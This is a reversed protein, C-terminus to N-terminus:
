VDDVRRAVARADFPEGGMELVEFGTATLMGELASPTIGWWWNDYTGSKGAGHESAESGEREFRHTIGLRPGRTAPQYVARGADSLGPYFVCGQEIGPIEPIAATLLLLTERTVKRLCELTHLPNPSHYLVGACFVVEHIGVEELVSPDHLDGNVFRVKSKRRAHEAEYERSAPMMDVATISTAGCEEALFSLAGNIGWMAGVDAFSKGPAHRKILEERIPAPRLRRKLKRRM